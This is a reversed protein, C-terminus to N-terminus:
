MLKSVRTLPIMPYQCCIDKVAKYLCLGSPLQLFTDNQLGQNCTDVVIIIDIAFIITAAASTAATVKPHM